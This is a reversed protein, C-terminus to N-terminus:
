SDNQFIYPNWKHGHDMHHYGQFIPMCGECIPCALLPYWCKSPFAKLACIPLKVFSRAKTALSDTMISSSALWHIQSPALLRIQCYLTRWCAHYLIVRAQAKHGVSSLPGPRTTIRMCWTKIGLRALLHVTRNATRPLLPMEFVWSGMSHFFTWLHSATASSKAM